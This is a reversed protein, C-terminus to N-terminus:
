KAAGKLSGVTKGSPDGILCSVLRDDAQTWSSETPTFPVSGYMSQDYPVGVFAEFAEQCGQEAQTSVADDGPYEDGTLEFDHYVEYDHEDACDVIPVESVETGSVDNMCDGVALTFVDTQTQEIEEGTTSDTAPPTAPQSSCGALALGAVLAGIAMWGARTSMSKVSMCSEETIAHTETRRGGVLSFARQSCPRDGMIPHGAPRRLFLSHETSDPSPCGPTRASAHSCPM